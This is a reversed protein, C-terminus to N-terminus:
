WGMSGPVGKFPGVVQSTVWGGYFRGPQATAVEGAVTCEDMQQAYVAVRDALAEYGPSPDPYNWAAAPRTVGGGHVDLYRAAGKFECFSSRQGPTLAGGAFDDVPLYYVPPHSTELVRLARDTTAIREGGLTITVTGAVPEVRPPRPYDWVSEQGPGVPDPTPHRM